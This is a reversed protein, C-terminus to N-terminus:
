QKLAEDIKEMMEKFENLNFGQSQYFIKGDKGIVYNRPIQGTAYKDFISRDIDPVINMDYEYRKKFDLLAEWSHERGFMFMAFNPNDKYKPWLERSIQPIEKRCPPCWIAFFNLVIVKGKYSSLYKPTNPAIEFRFDPAKAGTKVKTGADSEANATGAMSSFAMVLAVLCLTLRKM